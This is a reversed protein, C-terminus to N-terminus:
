VAPRPAPQPVCKAVWCPGRPNFEDFRRSAVVCRQGEVEVESGLPLPRGREAIEVHEIRAADPGAIIVPKPIEFGAGFAPASPPVIVSM